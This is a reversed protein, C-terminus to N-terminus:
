CTVKSEEEGEQEEQLAGAEVGGPPMAVAAHKLSVQQSLRHDPDGAGVVDPLNQQALVGQHAGLPGLAGADDQSGAGQDVGAPLQVPALPLHSM